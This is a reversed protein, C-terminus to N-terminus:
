QIREANLTLRDTMARSLGHAKAGAVDQENAALIASERADIEDAMARLIANNQDSGLQALARAAARARAGLELMQTALDM